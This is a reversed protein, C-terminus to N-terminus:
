YDGEFFFSMGHSRAAEYYHLVECIAPVTNFTGFYDPTHSAINLIEELDDKSLEAWEGSDIKLKSSMPTYLDWFKRWYLVETPKDFDIFDEDDKVWGTACTDWFNESELQKRNKAMVVRVDLGM